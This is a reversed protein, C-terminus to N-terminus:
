TVRQRGKCYSHQLWSCSPYLTCRCYLVLVDDLRCYLVCVPHPVFYEIRSYSHVAVIGYKYTLVTSYSRGLM